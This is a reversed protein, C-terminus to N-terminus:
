DSIENKKFSSIYVIVTFGIIISVSILFLFLHDLEFYLVAFFSTLLTGLASGVTSVFFVIGAVKGSTGLGKILLRISYPSIAGAITIPLFFLLLSALLAGLRPDNTTDFIFELTQYSGIVCPLAAVASIVLIAALKTVSPKNASLYGGVLYGLALALMFITMVAGWVHIGSGFYPALVRGGLLEVSMVFFGSWSSIVYVILKQFNIM